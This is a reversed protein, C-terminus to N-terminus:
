GTAARVRLTRAPGPRSGHVEDMTPHTEYYVLQRVRYKKTFGEILGQKHLPMRRFLDSTVGVYLTGNRRSTLICVCPNRERYPM